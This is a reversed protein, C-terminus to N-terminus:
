QALGLSAIKPEVSLSHLEHLTERAGEMGLRAPQLNYFVKKGCFRWEWEQNQVLIM